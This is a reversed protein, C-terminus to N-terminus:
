LGTDGPQSPIPGELGAPVPSGLVAVLLVQLLKPICPQFPHEGPQLFKNVELNSVALEAMFASSKKKSEDQIPERGPAPERGVANQQPHPFQLAAATVRHLVLQMLLLGMVGRM